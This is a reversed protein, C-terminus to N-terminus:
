SNQEKNKNGSLRIGIMSSAFTFIEYFIGGISFAAINYILCLPSKILNLKRILQANSLSFSISNIVLGAMIFVSYWADWTLLSTVVVLLTFFIPEFLTKKDRKNRFYYFVYKVASILNLAMATMAGIMLYHASFILSTALQFVLMKEPTKMQFSAFGVIVALVSLGQGIIQVVGDFNMM